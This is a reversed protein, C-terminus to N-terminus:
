DYRLERQLKYRCQDRKQAVFNVQAFSFFSFIRKPPREELEPAGRM